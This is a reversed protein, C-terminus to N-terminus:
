HREINNGDFVFTFLLATHRKRELAEEKFSEGYQTM